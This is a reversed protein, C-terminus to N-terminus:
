EGSVPPEPRAARVISACGKLIDEAATRWSFRRARERGKRALTGRLDPDGLLRDIAAAIEAADTPRVTLAADGVVEPLSSTHSTIVPCGCAMAELPTLGFGEESSPYVYLDALGYYPAIEENPVYDIYVVERELGLSRTIRRIEAFYATKPGIVVLKHRTRGASRLRRFAELVAPLNRRPDHAGVSLLYAEPLGLRRRTGERAAEDGAFPRFHDALGTRIVDIREPEIELLDILQRRVSRSLTFIRQARRASRPVMVRWYRTWADTQARSTLFILDYVMLATPVPAALPAIPDLCLLVDARVRRAKVPLYAQKWAVNRLFNLGQRPISRKGEAPPLGRPGPVCTCTVGPIPHSRFQRSLNRVYTGIGTANRTEERTDILVRM